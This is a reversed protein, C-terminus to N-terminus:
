SEASKGSSKGGAVVVAPNSIALCGAVIQYQQETFPGERKVVWNLKTVGVQKEEPTVNIGLMGNVHALKTKRGSFHRRTMMGAKAKYADANSQTATLVLCYMEQSLRRLQKWTTDIQDLPERIGVPPALIDAYDIVVVDAVWGERQWDQLVSMIGYVDVTSNPHCRLRFIDRNRCAKKYARFAGPATLLREPKRDEGDVKTKKTDPDIAVSTPYWFGRPERHPLRAARSGLRMLVDDENMDGVDFFAVRRRNRIARFAADLLWYSKGSKDPGMWAILKGRVMVRGLFSDLKGPYSVLQKEEEREFARMWVDYDAHPKITSGTGLEVRSSKSLLEDAKDPRNHELQVTAEDLLNQLRVRNFYRGARDLTFESSPPSDQHEYEQSLHVLFREVLKVIETAEPHSAAWDEFVGRLQGNPPSDYRKLHSICLRGVLNAWPSDFLGDPTWQSAIRNLVVKDTIMGCLVARLDDGRYRRTKM